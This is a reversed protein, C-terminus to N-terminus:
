REGGLPEAFVPLVPSMCADCRLYVVRADAFRTVCPTCVFERYRATCTPCVTSVLWDAPNGCRRELDTQWVQCTPALDVDPMAALDVSPASM